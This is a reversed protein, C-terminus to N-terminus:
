AMRSQGAVRGDPAVNASEEILRRMLRSLEESITLAQELQLGVAYQEGDAYCYAVEGLLLSGDVDVRIAAGAPVQTNILLRMGRGSINVIRGDAEIKTGGLVTVRVPEDTPFRPESRLDM